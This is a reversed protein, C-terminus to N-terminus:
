QKGITLRTPQTVANNFWAFASMRGPKYLSVNLVDLDTNGGVGLQKNSIQNAVAVGYPFGEGPITESPLTKGALFAEIDYGGCTLFPAGERSLM